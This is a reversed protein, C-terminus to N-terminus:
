RPTRDRSRGEGAARLWPCAEVAMEWSARMAPVTAEISRARIADLAQPHRGTRHKSRASRTRLASPRPSGYRERTTLRSFAPSEAHAWLTRAALGLSLVGVMDISSSAYSREEHALLKGPPLAAVARERVALSPPASRAAPALKLHCEHRSGVWEQGSVATRGRDPVRDADPM